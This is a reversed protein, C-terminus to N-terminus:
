EATQITGILFQFMTFDTKISARRRQTQITGILFQFGDKQLMFVTDAKIGTQITGILFQFLPANSRM